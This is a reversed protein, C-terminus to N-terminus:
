SYTLLVMLLLKKRKLSMLLLIMLIYIRENFALLSEIKNCFVIIVLPAIKKVMTGHFKNVSFM